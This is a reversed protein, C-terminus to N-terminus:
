DLGVEVERETEEGTRALEPELGPAQVHEIRVGEYARRRLNEVEPQEQALPTHVQHARWLRLQERSCALM